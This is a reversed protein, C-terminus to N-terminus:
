CVDILNAEVICRQSREIPMLHMLQGVLHCRPPYNSLRKRCAFMDQEDRVAYLSGLIAKPPDFVSESGIDGHYVDVAPELAPFAFLQFLLDLMKLFDVPWADDARGLNYLDTEV